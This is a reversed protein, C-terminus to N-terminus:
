IGTIEKGLECALVKTVKRELTSVLKRIIELERWKQIWRGTAAVEWL